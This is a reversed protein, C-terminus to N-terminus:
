SGQERNDIEGWPQLLICDSEVTAGDISDGEDVLLGFPMGVFPYPVLAALPVEYKEKHMVDRVMATAGNVEEVVCIFDDWDRIPSFFICEDGPKITV